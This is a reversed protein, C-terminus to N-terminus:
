LSPSRTGSPHRRRQRRRGVDQDRRAVHAQPHQHRHHDGRVRRRRHHLRKEGSACDEYAMKTDWVHANVVETLTHAGDKAVNVSFFEGDGIAEHSTEDLVFGFKASMGNTSDASEDVIKKTVTVKAQTCTNTFSGGDLIGTLEAEDSAIQVTEESTATLEYSPVAGEVVAYTYKAGGEGYLPLGSITYM